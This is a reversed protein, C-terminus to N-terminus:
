ELASAGSAMTKAAAHKMTEGAHKMTETAHRVLPKAQEIADDAMQRMPNPHRRAPMRSGIFWGIGFAILGVTMPSRLATRRVAGPTESAVNGMSGAARRVMSAGKGSGTMMAKMRDKATM